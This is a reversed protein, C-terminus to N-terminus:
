IEDPKAQKDPVWIYINTPCVTTLFRNAGTYAGLLTLIYPGWGKSVLSAIYSSEAKLNYSKLFVVFKRLQLNMSLITMNMGVESYFRTRFHMRHLILNFHEIRM